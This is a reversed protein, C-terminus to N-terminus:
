QILSASDPYPYSATVCAALDSLIPTVGAVDVELSAEREGGEVVEDDCQQTAM